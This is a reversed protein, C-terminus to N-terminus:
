EKPSIIIKSSEEIIEKKNLLMKRFEGKIYMEAQDSYHKSFPNGSQGTPLISLSNEVDSFDIIRRTSPGAKSEYLGSDTYDFMINNIVEQNGQAPFPGVNFLPKLAEVASLAHNHELTHVKEWTWMDVDVGLQTNLSAVTEKFSKTLIDRKTEVNDTAVDDWWVSENNVIQKAITRKLLHAKIIQNFLSEGLEDKYTNELYRYIFKTYITPAVEDTNSYGTWSTLANLVQLEQDDLDSKEIYNSVHEIIELFVPSKVDNMMVSTSEIDWDNKPELLEEIRKARNEPLYYGPYLMGAISDPQNNASYVYGWEPNEAMPNNKFDLYEIPDDAGTAGNLIFKPNVHNQHKYLTGTAWWAVNGKADGYMINLGPAHILSAGEKAQSMDKAHSLKYFADFLKNEFQTYVWQIAVPNNTAIEKHIGTMIPGHYSKKVVLDIPEKDKVLITKTKYSYKKYGDATKYLTSDTPHNEEQYFDLDDNEFMTIGYAYDKNHGLVPFPIGAVFYGYIERNPTEIHAEYWVSPQAYAIHPDNALIVHGSKTKSPSIVWSNSGIFLPIPLKETVTHINEAMANLIPESVEVSNKLLTTNGNPNVDFDVIYPAGLKQKIHTIVPDTKQAQAFSFAMYAVVNYIDKLTFHSKEVGALTFEIPTPGEDIFQNVGKLYAVAELYPAGTKDLKELARDTAEDVSLTKFFKDTEILKEGLIESLNGPAIRKMLEMQWLREQAHLYGLAVLADSNNKAYIHPVGYSDVYAEVSDSVGTLELTGSYTPKQYRSYVFGCIVLALILFVVVKFIKKIM